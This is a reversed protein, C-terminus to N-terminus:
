RPSALVEGEHQAVARQRHLELGLGHLGHRRREALVRQAGADDGAEDAQQEDQEEHEEVVPQEAEDHEGTQQMEPASSQAITEHRPSDCPRARVRAPTVPMMTDTPTM